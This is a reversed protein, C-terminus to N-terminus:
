QVKEGRALAAKIDAVEVAVSAEITSFLADVDGIQARLKKKLARIAAPLDDPPTAWSTQEMANM